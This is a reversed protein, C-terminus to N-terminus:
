WQKRFFYFQLWLNTYENIEYNWYIKLCNKCDQFMILYIEPSYLTYWTKQPLIDLQSSPFPIDHSYLPMHPLIYRPFIPPSTVDDERYYQPQQFSYWTPSLPIPHFNRPFFIFITFFPFHLINLQLSSLVYWTFKGETVSPECKVLVEEHDGIDEGDIPNPDDVDVGDEELEAVNDDVNNIDDAADFLDDGDNVDDEEEIVPLDEPAEVVTRPPHNRLHKSLNATFNWVEM